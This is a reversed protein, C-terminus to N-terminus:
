AHKVLLLLYELTDLEGRTGWAVLRRELEVIAPYLFGPTICRASKSTIKPSTRPLQLEGRPLAYVGADATSSATRRSM